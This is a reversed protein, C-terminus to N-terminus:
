HHASREDQLPKRSRASSSFSVASILADAIHHLPLVADALQAEAIVRPMGYVVCSAEDQAIVKGGAQKVLRAGELGDKGMGTMIVVLLKGGIVELASRITVDISPRFLTQPQKSVHLLVNPPQSHFHLHFGGPAIYITGNKLEMRERAEVVTVQSLEDLRQALSTTFVPPMHQVVVVPKPFDVPLLPIVKQLSFPGGTSIGIVVMQCSPCHIRHKLHRLQFDTTRSPTGRSKSVRPFTQAVEKVKAILQEKIKIINFSNVSRPKSIFDVAGNEMARITEASGKKTVGSVILVPLPNEQMITKIAQIGDFPPMHVDITLVDPKLQKVKEVAETGNRAFGIVRIAPDTELIMKLAQRVLVSEDTVLVRIAM